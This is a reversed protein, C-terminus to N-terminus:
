PLFPPCGVTYSNVFATIDALDLVGYPEAFDAATDGATFARVFGSVDALDLVGRPLALDPLCLRELLIMDLGYGRRAPSSRPNSGTVEVRFTNAGQAIQPWALTQAQTPGDFVGSFWQRVAPHFGRLVNSSSTDTTAM